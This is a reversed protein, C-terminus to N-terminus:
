NLSSSGGARRPSRRRRAAVIAALDVGFATGPPTAGERLQLMLQRM